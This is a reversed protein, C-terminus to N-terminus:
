KEGLSSSKTSNVKEHEIDKLVKKLYCETSGYPLSEKHETNKQVRTQIIPIQVELKLINHLHLGNNLLSRDIM